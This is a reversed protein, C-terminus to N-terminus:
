KKVHYINYQKNSQTYLTLQIKHFGITLKIRTSNFGNPNQNRVNGAFINLKSGIM